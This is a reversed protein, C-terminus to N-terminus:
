VLDSLLSNNKELSFIINMKCGEGPASNIQVRGNNLEARNYINKLGVGNKKLSPDFGNGNDSICVKFGEDDTKVSIEVETAGSHKIINNLQEQIIRYSALKIDANIKQLDEEHIDLVVYIKGSLNINDVLEELALLFQGEDFSPTIMAHSINRVENIAANLSEISKQMCMDHMDPSRLGAEILMKASALLQNVNDHLEKGIETREKEQANITVETIEKQRNIKQAVLENQLLLIETIDEIVGIARYAYGKGDRLVIVNQKVHAVSGDAKKMKFFSSWKIERSKIFQEFEEKIRTVDNEYIYDGLVVPDLNEGSPYGFAKKFAENFYVKNTIFDFDWIVDFSAKAALEFREVAKKLAKEAQIKEALDAQRKIAQEIAAPLREPRDKIQR